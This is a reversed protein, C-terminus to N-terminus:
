LYRVTCLPDGEEVFAGAYTHVDVQAPRALRYQHADAILKNFGIRADLDRREADVRRRKRASVSRVHAAAVAAAQAVSVGRENRRPRSLRAVGRQRMISLRAM